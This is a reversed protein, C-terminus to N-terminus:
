TVMESESVMRLKALLFSIDDGYEDELEDSTLVGYRFLSLFFIVRLTAAQLM